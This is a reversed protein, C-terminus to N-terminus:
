VVIGFPLAHAKVMAYTDTIEDDSVAQSSIGAFHTQSKGLFSSSYGSGVRLLNASIAVPNDLSVTSVIGTTFNHYIIQTGTVKIVRFAWAGADESTSASKVVATGANNVIVTGGMQSANFAYLSSSGYQLTSSGYGGVFIPRTTGDATIGIARSVSMLTMQATQQILTDVFASQSIFEAYGTGFVPAGTVAPKRDQPALNRLLTGAGGDFFNFYECGSFPPDIEGSASADLAALIIATM